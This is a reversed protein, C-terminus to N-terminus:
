DINASLQEAPFEPFMEVLVDRMEDPALKEAAFLYFCADLIPFPMLEEEGVQDPALEPGAPKALVRQIGEYGQKEYIYDLLYMVVTKPVNALVALAGMLDGGITTYGVAKESMNGTQLF